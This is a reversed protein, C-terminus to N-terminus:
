GDAHEMRDAEVPDVQRIILRVLMKEVDGETHIAALEKVRAYLEESLPITVHIDPM